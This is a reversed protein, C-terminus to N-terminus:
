PQSKDIHAEAVSIGYEERSIVYTCSPNKEVLRALILVTLDKAVQEDFEGGPQVTTHNEEKNVKLGQCLTELIDKIVAGYDEKEEIKKDIFDLLKITPKKRDKTIIYSSEGYRKEINHIFDSIVKRPSKPLSQVYVGDINVRLVYQGRPFGYKDIHFSVIHPSGSKPHFTYIEAVGRMKIDEAISELCVDLAYTEKCIPCHFVLTITKLEDM